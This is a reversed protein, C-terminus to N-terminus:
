GDDLADEFTRCNEDWRKKCSFLGALISNISAVVRSNFDFVPSLTRILGKLESVLDNSFHIVAKKSGVKVKPFTSKVEIGSGSKTEAIGLASSERVIMTLLCFVIFSVITVAPGLSEVRNVDIEEMKDILLDVGLSSFTM